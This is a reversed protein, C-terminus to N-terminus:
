DIKYDEGTIMKLSRSAALAVTRKGASTYPDSLLEELIPITSEDGVYGLAETAMARLEGNESKTAEVMLPFAEKNGRQGLTVLAGGQIIERSISSGEKLPKINGTAIESLIPYVEPNDVNGLIYVAFLKICGEEEQLARKLPEFIRNGYPVAMERISSCAYEVKRVDDCYRTIIQIKWVIAAIEANEKDKALVKNAVNLAADYKGMEYYKQAQDIESSCGAYLLLVLFLITIWNRQLKPM